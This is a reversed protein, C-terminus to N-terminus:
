RISSRSIPLTSLGFGYLNADSEIASTGTTVVRGYLELYDTTGNLYIVDSTNSNYSGDTQTNVQSGWNIVSGNKYLNCTTKTSTPNCAQGIGGNVQYYGAVSPQFKGDVLANDTDISATDLNIKTFVGTVVTQNASLHGRFAVTKGGTGVAVPMRAENWLIITNGVTSKVEYTSGSPVIGFINNFKTEDSLTTDQTLVLRAGDVFLDLFSNSDKKCQGALSIYLPVDNDNTYVTNLDREDKVNEWVMKEPTYSGGGSGSGSSSFGSTQYSIDVTYVDFNTNCHSDSIKDLVYGDANSTQLAISNEGNVIFPAITTSTGLNGFGAFRVVGTSSNNNAIFPTSIRLEGTGTKGTVQLIPIHLTVQNGIRSYTAKATANVTGGITLEADYEGEEYDISEGGGSSPEATANICYLMAVNRPRTEAGGTFSTLDAGAVLDPAGAM